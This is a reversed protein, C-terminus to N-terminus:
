SKAPQGHHSYQLVHEPSTHGQRWRFSKLCGGFQSTPDDRRQAGTSPEISRRSVVEGPRGPPRALNVGPPTSGCQRAPRTVDQYTVAAWGRRMVAGPTLPGRTALLSTPLTAFGGDIDVAPIARRLVGATGPM